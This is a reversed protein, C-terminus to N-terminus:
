PIGELLMLTAATHRLVHLSGSSLGSAKRLRRFRATLDGPYIPRGLENCFVLDGQEYAEGAFAQELLQADRHRELTAVTEPDLAITRRSRASKPPGFRAGGKLPLLQQEVSLRSGALDLARWTLGLLEGRRMGTTAALRWLSAYRDDQAFELFRVLEKASWAEVRTRPM